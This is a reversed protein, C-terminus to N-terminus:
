CKNITCMELMIVTKKLQLTHFLEYTIKLMMLMKNEGSMPILLGTDMYQLQLDLMAFMTSISPLLLPYTCSHMYSTTNHTTVQLKMMITPNWLSPSVSQRGAVTCTECDLGEDMLRVYCHWVSEPWSPHLCGLHNSCYITSAQLKNVWKSTNAQCLTYQLGLSISRTSAAPWPQAKPLVCDHVGWLKVGEQLYCRKGGWLILWNTRMTVGQSLM